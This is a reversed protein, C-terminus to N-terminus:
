KRGGIEKGCKKCFRTKTDGTIKFGVRTAKKCNPCVLSVNSLNLPKIIDIIGGEIGQRGKVHRKVMNIGGVVVKDQKGLVREVTGSKGRDRGLLIQVNDGKIIKQM